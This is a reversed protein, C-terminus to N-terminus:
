ASSMPSTVLDTEYETSSVSVPRGSSGESTSETETEASQSRFRRVQERVDTAPALREANKKKQKSGSTQPTAPTRPSMKDDVSSSTSSESAVPPSPLRGSRKKPTKPTLFQRAPGTTAAAEQVVVQPVRADAAQVTIVPRTKATRAQLDLPRPKARGGKGDAARGGGQTEPVAPVQQRGHERERQRSQREIEARSRSRSRSKSKNRSAQTASQTQLYTRSRSRDQARQIDSRAARAQDQRLRQDRAKRERQDRERLAAASADKGRQQRRQQDAQDRAERAKARAADEAAARAVAQEQAAALAEAQAKQLAEAHAKARATAEQIQKALDEPSPEPQQQQQQQILQKENYQEPQTQQQQQQQQQHAGATEGSKEQQQQQAAEQQAQAQRLAELQEPTPPPPKATRLEKRLLELEVVPTGEPLKSKLRDGEYDFYVAWFNGERVAVFGEWGMFTMRRDQRTCDFPGTLNGESDKRVGFKVEYTESHVYIWNMIPAEDTITSVLGAYRAEPYPLFYGAFPHGFPAENDLGTDIYLKDGSLVVRRGQLISSFESSKPCHVVLNNKRSRHEERRAKAQAHRIGEAAGFIVGFGILTQLVM